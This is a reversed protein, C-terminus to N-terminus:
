ILTSPVGAFAVGLVPVTLSLLGTPSASCGWLWPVAVMLVVCPGSVMEWETEPQWRPLEQTAGEPSGQMHHECLLGTPVCEGLGFTVNKIIWLPSECPSTLWLFLPAVELLHKFSGRVFLDAFRSVQVM